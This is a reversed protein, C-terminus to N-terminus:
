NAIVNRWFFKLAKAAAVSYRRLRNTNKVAILRIPPGTVSEPRKTKETVVLNFDEIASTVFPFGFATRHCAFNGFIRLCIIRHRLFPEVLLNARKEIFSQQLALAAFWQDIHTRGTFVPALDRVHRLIRLLAHQATAM